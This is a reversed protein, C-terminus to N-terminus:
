LFFNFTDVVQVSAADAAARGDPAGVKGLKQHPSVNDAVV